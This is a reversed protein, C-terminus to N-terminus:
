VECGQEATLILFIFRRIPIISPKIAPVHSKSWNPLTTKYNKDVLRYPNNSMNSELYRFIPGTFKLPDDNIKKFNSVTNHTVTRLAFM